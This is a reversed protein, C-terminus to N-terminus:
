LTKWVAKKKKKKELFGHVSNDHVLSREYPWKKRMTSGAM